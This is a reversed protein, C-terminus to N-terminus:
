TWINTEIQSLDIFGQLCGYTREIHLNNLRKKKFSITSGILLVMWVQSNHTSTFKLTVAFKKTQVVEGSFCLWELAGMQHLSFLNLLDSLLIRSPTILLEGKQRKFVFSQMIVKSLKEKSQM